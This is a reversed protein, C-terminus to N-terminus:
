MGDQETALWAVLRATESLDPVVLDADTAGLADLTFDGTAVALARCGNHKACDVDLPTDGIVVVREAAIARGRAEAFRRMAVPPLDRRLAGDGAFAGFPFREWELGAAVIKLRATQAWNGTLLGVALEPTAALRQVLEAVGPMLRVAAVGDALRAELLEAYRGRFRAEDACTAEIGYKRLVDGVILTDLRGAIPVGEMSIGRGPYLEDFTRQMAGVGAGQSRLLTGDIDFLVLTTAAHM